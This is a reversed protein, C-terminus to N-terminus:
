SSSWTELEEEEEADSKPTKLKQQLEEVVALPTQVFSAPDDRFAVEIGEVTVYKAGQDKCWSIFDKLEAVNGVMRTTRPTRTTRSGTAM